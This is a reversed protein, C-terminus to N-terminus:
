SPSGQTPEKRRLAAMRFAVVTIALGALVYESVHAMAVAMLRRKTEFDASRSEAAVTGAIVYVGALLAMMLIWLVACSVAVMRLVRKPPVRLRLNVLALVIGAIAGAWWSAAVGWVVAM